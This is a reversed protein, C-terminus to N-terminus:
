AAGKLNSQRCVHMYAMHSQLTCGQEQVHVRKALTHQAHETQVSRSVRAIATCHVHLYMYTCVTVAQLHCPSQKGNNTGVESNNAWAGSGAM